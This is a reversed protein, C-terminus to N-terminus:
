FDINNIIKWQWYWFMNRKATYDMFNTTSGQSYGSTDAPHKLSFTHGMEHTLIEWDALAPKFIVISYSKTKDPTFPTDAFGAYKVMERNNILFIVRENPDKQKTYKQNLLNKIIDWNKNSGELKKSADEVIIGAKKIEPETIKLSDTGSCVFQYFAQNFSNQNLYNELLSGNTYNNFNVVNSTTGSPTNGFTVDVVKYKIKDEKLITSKKKTYFNLKGVLKRNKGYVSLTAKKVSSKLTIELEHEGNKANFEKIMGNDITLGASTEFSYYISDGATPQIIAKLKVEDGAWASVNPVHYEIKANNAKTIEFKSDKGKEYEKKFANVKEHYKDFGFSGDYISPNPIDFWVAEADRKEVEITLKGPYYELYPNINRTMKRIEETYISVEQPPNAFQGDGLEAIQLKNWIPAVEVQLSDSVGTTLDLLVYNVHEQKSINKGSIHYVNYPNDSWSLSQFDTKNLTGYPHFDEAKKIITDNGTKYRINKRVPICIYRGENLMIKSGSPYYNEAKTKKAIEEANEAIMEAEKDLKQIVFYIALDDDGTNSGSGRQQRDALSIVPKGDVKKVDYVKGSADQLTVPFDVTGDEKKPLEVTHPNGSEDMIVLVGSEDDYYYEPNEPITFDLKKTNPPL